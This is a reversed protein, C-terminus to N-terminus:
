YICLTLTTPDLRTQKFRISKKYVTKKIWYDERELRFNPTNPTVREIIQTQLNYHNHGNLNYHVGTAEKQLCICNLQEKIRDVLRRSTQGVYQILCKSCTTLYIVGKTNCNFTGKMLFRERTATSIFHNSQLVYPCIGCPKNYPKIGKVQRKSKGQTPLKAQVLKNRLNPPQKFAVM